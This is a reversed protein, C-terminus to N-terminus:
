KLKRDIQIGIPILLTISGRKEENIESKLSLVVGLTKDYANTNGINRHRLADFEM